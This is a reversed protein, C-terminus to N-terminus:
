NLQQLALSLRKDRSYVDDRFHATGHADVWATWYVVYIPVPTALTIRYNKERDLTEIIRQKTWDPQGKLLYVALDFPKELRVCGHSFCRVTQSFLSKNPTDHLYVNYRNPLYFKISGLANAPGPDQRFRYPFQDKSVTHWDITAPEVEQIAGNVTQLVRMHERVLYDADQRLKPLMEKTAISHPVEWYPNLVIYLIKSSFIPTQQFPRGVIARMGLVLKDNEIVHLAFDAINVVVYSRGLERPLWRWRELNIGIQSVRRAIPVALASITKQGVIGDPELGHRIQFRVVARRLPDDFRNGNRHVESLDELFLLRKKLAEVDNGIAGIQLMRAPKSFPVEKNQLARYAPLADRLRTYALSEPVLDSAAQVLGETFASEIFLEIDLLPDDSSIGQRLASNRLRGQQLDSIYSLLADTLLIDAQALREPETPPHVVLKAIQGAKYNDENLGERNANRFVELLENVQSRWQDAQSWVPVDDRAGYFKRILDPETLNKGVFYTSVSTTQLQSRLLTSVDENTVAGVSFPLLGILSPIFLLSAALVSPKM